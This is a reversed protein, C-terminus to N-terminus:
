ASDNLGARELVAQGVARGLARGAEIDSRFHIGAWLRSWSEEDALKEFYAADRPFLAGLVTEMAGGLGAHNAPYSPHNPTVFVTTVTPDLQFPRIAWYAYKADFSAVFMDYAAIHQLAYARAARPPNTDLRYEFLKQSTQDTYLEFYARGGYYEWYSATLNTLNTRQYNKVEALEGARQESDLPPPGPRFQSPSALAWPKWTGGTPEVPNTGNWLGPDTPVSGTWAADSGDARGWAVAREGV